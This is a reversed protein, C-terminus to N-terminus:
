YSSEIVPRGTIKLVWVAKGGDALENYIFIHSRSEQFISLVSNLNDDEVVYGIETIDSIDFGLNEPWFRIETEERPEFNDFDGGGCWGLSIDYLLNEEYFLCDNIDDKISYLYDHINIHSQAETFFIDNYINDKLCLIDSFPWEKIIYEQFIILTVADPNSHIYYNTEHLAEILSINPGGAETQTKVTKSRSNTSYKITYFFGDMIQQSPTYEEDLQFFFTQAFKSKLNLLQQSSLQSQIKFNESHKFHTLECFGAEDIITNENIGAIGGTIRYEIIAPESPSIPSTSDKNCSLFVVLNVFILFITFQRM